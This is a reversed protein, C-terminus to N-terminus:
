RNTRCVDEINLKRKRPDEIIDYFEEIYKISTNKEQKTLYPFDLYLQIIPEKNQEFAEWVPEWTSESRCFGRYVREKISSIGLLPNPEAYPAGVIGSWDFDYPVVIPAAGPEPIILEMNHGAPISWDTNGIMYEFLALRNASEGDANMPHVNSTEMKTGGMRAAMDDDDEILFGHHVQTYPRKGTNVYTIEILRVRFSQDTLLNYSRYVLYEQFLKQEFAQNKGRCHTVLKVKSQGQFVTGTVVSDAMKFRLPPFQCTSKRRRFNGRVKAKMPLVVSDGGEQYHTVTIPHYDREDGRDNICAHLDGEVKIVLMSDSTFLPQQAFVFGASLLLITTIFLKQPTM